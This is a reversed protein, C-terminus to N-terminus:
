WANEPLCFTLFSTSFFNLFDGFLLRIVELTASLVTRNILWFLIYLKLDFSELETQLSCM